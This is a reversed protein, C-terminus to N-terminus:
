IRDLLTDDDDENNFTAMIDKQQIVYAHERPYKEQFWPQKLMWVWFDPPVDRMKVGLHKKFPCPTDHTVEGVPAPPRYSGGSASPAEDNITRVLGKVAELLYGFSQQADRNAIALEANTCNQLVYKIHEKNM